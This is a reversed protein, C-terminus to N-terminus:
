LIRGGCRKPSLGYWKMPARVRRPAADGEVSFWRTDLDLRLAMDPLRYGKGKPVSLVVRERDPRDPASLAVVSRSLCGFNSAGRGRYAHSASHGEEAKPNGIHRPLLLAANAEKAMQKEPKFLQAAESVASFRRDYAFDM